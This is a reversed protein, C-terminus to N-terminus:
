DEDITKCIIYLMTIFVSVAGVCLAVFVIDWVNM